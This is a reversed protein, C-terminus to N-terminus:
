DPTLNLDLTTRETLYNIIEDKELSGNNDQDYIIWIKEIESLIKIEKSIKTLPIKRESM